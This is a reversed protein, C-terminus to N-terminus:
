MYVRARANVEVGWSTKDWYLLVHCLSVAESVSGFAGLQLDM